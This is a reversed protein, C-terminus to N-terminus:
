ENKSEIKEIKDQIKEIKNLMDHHDAKQYGGIKEIKLMIDKLIDKLALSSDTFTKQYNEFTKQYGEIIGMLKDEREDARTSLKEQQKTLWKLIYILIFVIVMTLAIGSGFEKVTTIFLTELGQM